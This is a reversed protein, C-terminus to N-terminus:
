GAIVLCVSYQIFFYDLLWFEIKNCKEVRVDFVYFDLYGHQQEYILCSCFRVIYSLSSLKDEDQYYAEGEELENEEM